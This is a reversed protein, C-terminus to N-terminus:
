GVAHNHVHIRRFVLIAPRRSRVRVGFAYGAVYFLALIHRLLHRNDRHRVGGRQPQQFKGQLECIHAWVRYMLIPVTMFVSVLSPAYHSRLRQM